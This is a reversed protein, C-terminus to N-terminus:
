RLTRIGDSVAFTRVHDRGSSSSFTNRREQHNITQHTGKRYFGGSHEALAQLDRRLWFHSLACPNQVEGQGGNEAFQGLAKPDGSKGRRDEGSSLFAIM